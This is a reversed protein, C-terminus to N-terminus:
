LGMVSAERWPLVDGPEAREGVHGHNQLANKSGFVRTAGDIMAGGADDDGIM